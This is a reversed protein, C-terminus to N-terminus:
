NRTYLQRMSLLLRHCLPREERIVGMNQYMEGTIGTRSDSVDRQGDSNGLAGNLTNQMVQFFDAVHCRALDSATVGVFNLWIKAKPMRSLRIVGDTFEQAYKTGSAWVYM